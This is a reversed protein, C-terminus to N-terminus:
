RCPASASRDGRFGAANRHIAEARADCRSLAADTLASLQLPSPVVLAPSIKADYPAAMPMIAKQPNPQTGHLSGDVAHHTHIGQCPIGTEAEIEQLAAFAFYDTGPSAHGHKNHNCVDDGAFVIASPTCDADLAANALAHLGHGKHIDALKMELTAPGHLLKFSAGSDQMQLYEALRNQLAETIDQALPSDDGVSCHDLLARFHLNSAIGKEEVVLAPRGQTPVHHQQLVSDVSNELTAKLDRLGDLASQETASPERVAVREGDVRMVAGSDAILTVNEPATVGSDRLLHLADRESRSTLVALSFPRGQANLRNLQTVLNKPLRSDLPKKAFLSASVVGQQQLAEIDADPALDRQPNSNTAPPTKLNYGLVANGDLDLVFLPRRTPTVDSELAQIFDQQQTDTSYKM